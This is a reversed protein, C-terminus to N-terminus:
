YSELIILNNFSNSQGRAIELWADLADAALQRGMAHCGLEERKKMEHDLAARGSDHLVEPWSVASKLGKLGRFRGFVPRFPAGFPWFCASSSSLRGSRPDGFM